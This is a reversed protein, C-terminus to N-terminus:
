FVLWQVGTEADKCCAIFVRTARMLSSLSADKRRVQACVAFIYVKM